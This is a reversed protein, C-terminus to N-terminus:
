CFDVKKEVAWNRGEQTWIQVKYGQVLLLDKVLQQAGLKSLSCSALSAYHKIVTTTNYVTEAIFEADNGHVTFLDERREFLRVLKEEHPLNNFFPAFGSEVQVDVDPVMVIKQQSSYTEQYRQLQTVHLVITIL